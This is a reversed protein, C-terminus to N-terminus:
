ANEIQGNTVHFHANCGGIIQVSKPGPGVFSLDDIITGTPNWRGPGPMRSDSVRGRFWCIGTHTGIKSNGNAAFCVPCLFSVGDAEAVTDVPKHSYEDIVKILKAELQRLTLKM